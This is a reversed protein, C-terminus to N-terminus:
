GLWFLERSITTFYIFQRRFQEAILPFIFAKQSNISEKYVHNVIVKIALEMERWGFKFGRRRQKKVAVDICFIM